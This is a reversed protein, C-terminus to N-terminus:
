DPKKETVNEEWVTQQWAGLITATLQMGNKEPKIPDCHPCFYMFRHCALLNPNTLRLLQMSNGEKLDTILRQGERGQSSAALATIVCGLVM